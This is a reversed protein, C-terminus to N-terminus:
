YVVVLRTEKKMTRSIKWVLNETFYNNKNLSSPFSLVINAQSLPLVSPKIKVSFVSLNYYLELKIEKLDCGGTAKETETPSLSLM